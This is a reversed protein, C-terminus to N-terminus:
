QKNDLGNNSEEVASKIGFRIINSKIQNFSTDVFVENKFFCYIGVTTINKNKNIMDIIYKVPNDVKIINAVMGHEAVTDMKVFAVNCLADQECKLALILDDVNNKAEELKADYRNLSIM